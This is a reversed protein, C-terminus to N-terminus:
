SVRRGGKNDRPKILETAARLRQRQGSYFILLQLKKLSHLTTRHIPVSLCAHFSSALLLLKNWEFCQLPSSHLLVICLRTLLGGPAANTTVKCHEQYVKICKSFLRGVVKPKRLLSTKNKQPKEIRRKM